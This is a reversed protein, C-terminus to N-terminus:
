TGAARASGTDFGYRASAGLGRKESGYHVGDKEDRFGQIPSRWSHESGWIAQYFVLLKKLRHDGM